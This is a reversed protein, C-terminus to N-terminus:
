CRLLSYFREEMNIIFLLSKLVSNSVRDRFVLELFVNINDFLRSSLMVSHLLQTAEKKAVDNLMCLTKLPNEARFPMLVCRYSVKCVCWVFWHVFWLSEADVTIATCLFISAQFSLSFSNWNINNSSLYLWQFNSAGEYMQFTYQLNSTVESSIQELWKVTDIISCQESLNTQLSGVGFKCSERLGVNKKQVCFRHLIWQSLINFWICTM